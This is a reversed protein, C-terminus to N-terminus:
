SYLEEEKVEEVEISNVVRDFNEKLFKITEEKEIEEIKEKVKKYPLGLDIVEHVDEPVKIIIEGMVLLILLFSKM